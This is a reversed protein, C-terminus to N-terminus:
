EKYGFREYLLDAVFDPVFASLDGHFQAIQKVASSSLYSYKLTTNFYITEVRHNSLKRNMQSMQLEYEFDTVARLGRVVVNVNIKKCYDTLLGEFSEVRVNPIDKTAEKLINVREDVSFLPTKEKNNLVSVVVEDFINAARKIIDLHGYTCPDFTGPYIAAKM